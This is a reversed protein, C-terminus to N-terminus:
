SCVPYLNLNHTSSHSQNQQSTIMIIALLEDGALYCIAVLHNYTTYFAGYDLGHTFWDSVGCDHHIAQVCVMCNNINYVSTLNTIGSSTIYICTCVSEMYSACPHWAIFTM